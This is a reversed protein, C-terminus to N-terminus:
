KKQKLISFRSGKLKSGSNFTDITGRLTDSIIKESCNAPFGKGMKAIVNGKKDHIEIEIHICDM